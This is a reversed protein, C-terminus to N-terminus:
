FARAGVTLLPVNTNHARESPDLVTQLRNFCQILMSRDPPLQDQSAATTRLGLCTLFGRPKIQQFFQTLQKLLLRPSRNIFSIEYFIDDILPTLKNLDDIMTHTLDHQELCPFKKFVVPFKHM